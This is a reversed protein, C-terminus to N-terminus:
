VLYHSGADLVEMSYPSGFIRPLGAPMCRLVEDDGFERAEYVARTESTMPMPKPTFDDVTTQFKYRNDWYGTIDVPHDGPEYTYVADPDATVESQTRSANACNGLQRGAERGTELTICTAYLKKAGDRGLNGTATVTDGAQVTDEFWNERRYTPLNGPPQLMWEESSGDEMTMTVAYRIHPNAW